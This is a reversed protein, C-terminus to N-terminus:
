SGKVYFYQALMGDTVSDLTYASVGGVNQAIEDDTWTTPLFLVPLEKATYEFYNFMRQLTVAPSPAPEQTLQILHNEEANNWGDLDLDQNEYFLTEGSPYGGGYVFGIGILEWKSAVGLDGVLSAVPTPQLTVKIGEKAWGGQFLEYEDTISESGAPYMLTFKMQESGKTMVGDVEHWGHAELLAKGKAPSYPYVPKSLAPDSYTTKPEAPYPGYVPAGLDDFIVSLAASGDMGFELAQRAYLNSLIKNVGDEAGTKMNPFVFDFSLNPAEVTTDPLEQRVSYDESPLYGIQIAGTKLGAFESTDSGEYQWIFQSVVSKHGSYNPNPVFTWSQNEVAKTLKFPGDVVSDFSPNTANQGLYEIEKATNSPYKDWAAKPWVQLAGIANSIFWAQNVPQTVTITFEYTGNQTVSKIDQPMGGEGQASAPWPSPAKTSMMAFLLHISWVADTATVPQGNSWHWKPNLFVHYVTGQTNYTVKSALQQTPDLSDQDNFYLLPEWMMALIDGVSTYDNAPNTEPFYWDVNTAAPLAAVITGGPTPGSSTAGAIASSAATTAVMALAAFGGILSAPLGLRM